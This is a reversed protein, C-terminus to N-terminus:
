SKKSETKSKAQTVRVETAVREKKDMHYFVTAMEGKDLSGEKKTDSNLVFKTTEEKGKYKRQLVLDSGSVSSITGMRHYTAPKAKEQTNTKSDAKKPTTQAAIMAGEGCFLLAAALLIFHRNKM